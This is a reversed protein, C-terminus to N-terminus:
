DDILEKGFAPAQPVLPIKPKRGQVRPKPLVFHSHRDHFQGGRVRIM